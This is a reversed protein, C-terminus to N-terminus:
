QCPSCRPLCGVRCAAPPTGFADHVWGELRHAFDATSTIGSAPPHLVDGDETVHDVDAWGGTFLVVSLEARSAALHVGVADPDHVRSRDTELRAPWPAAADRWTLPSVDLGATRWTRSRGTLVAAAEDLDLIRDM